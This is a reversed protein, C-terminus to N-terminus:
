RLSSTVDTPRWLSTSTIEIFDASFSPGMVYPGGHAAEGRM